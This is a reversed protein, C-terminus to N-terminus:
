CCRVICMWDVFDDVFAESLQGHSVMSRARDLSVSFRCFVYM